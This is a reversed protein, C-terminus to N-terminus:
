QKAKVHLAWKELIIVLEELHIPKSIYDDMGAQLCAERDGAMSNATMAIVIPQVNLCLRIMRTAELGDMEPMQVDMLILDYNVKSVEELVEKGDLAIDPNYGLKGLIRMALKQNVRNDEAILIKLPYRKAFDASLVNNSHQQEEVPSNKGHLKLGSFLHKSLLHQRIPKNLISTFFEIYQKAEDANSSLLIIPLASDIQQIGKALQVGDMGPMNLDTIVMDFSSASLAALAKEGSSVRKPVLRWKELLNKLAEGSNVNDDVILVQKGELAAMDKDVGAVQQSAKTSVSFRVTTGLNVESEIEIQGGMLGVLKKCIVLGLGANKPATSNTDALGDAIEKVKSISMGAGSDRVEVSLLVSGDKLTNTLSVKVVIDGQKTFKIANEILNMLVQRFRLSDGIIYQPVDSEVHCVLDIGAQSAKGGFVELVEEINSILDFDKQDLGIKGSEVKSYALVDDLLIDNIITLLNEGCNRITENYDRQEPSLNTEALLSAMGIVGNMPTRVEHGIRALLKSKSQTAQEADDRAKKERDTSYSLVESREALQRQLEGTQVRLANLKVKHFIYAGLMAIIVATLKFWLTQWVSLIFLQILVISFIPESIM